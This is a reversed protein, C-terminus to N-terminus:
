SKRSKESSKPKEEKSKEEKGKEEKAKEEKAKAKAKEKEKIAKMNERWEALQEDELEMQIALAEDVSLKEKELRRPLKGSMRSQLRERETKTLKQVKELYEPKSTKM